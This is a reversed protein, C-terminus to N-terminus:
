PTVVPYFLPLDDYRNLGFSAIFDQTPKSRLWRALERAADNAHPSTEVLYPRRMRPDGRVMLEMGDAKLKGTLVPIRGVITYAKAAAAEEIVARQNEGNFLGLQEDAFVVKGEEQLDHLVGDAGNSAHVLLRSKTESIKRLAAIGDRMGRIGAPDDTPGMIVLDNRVWPQPDVALGDAVLNIMADSAHVVILDIGGKRFASVVVPKPGAAVLEVVHGTENQFRTVLEPWFNTEMMGGIVAVKVTQQQKVESKSSCAIALAAIAFTRM